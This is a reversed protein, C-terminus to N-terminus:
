KETILILISDISTVYMCPTSFLALELVCYAALARKSLLLYRNPPTLTSHAYDPSFRFLVEEDTTAAGSGGSEM